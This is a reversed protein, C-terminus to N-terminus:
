VNFAEREFELRATPNSSLEAWRAKLEALKEPPAALLVGTRKVYANEVYALRVLERQQADIFDAADLLSVANRNPAIGDAKCREEVIRAAQRVALAYKQAEAAHTSM